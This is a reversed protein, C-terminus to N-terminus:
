AASAIKYWDKEAQDPTRYGLASHRRRTNYRLEIWRTIDVIAHRRTPYVTRHVLENKLTGNFSEAWANDYCIGTRGVSRLIGIKEAHTAYEDSTYQTGRDTHMITVGPRIHGNRDAMDLADTVLSTRMHDAIAYGVVKKTCCDLVTALYAWGEWTRIYTIDGVLKSAPEDATFDRRVLDPIRGADGAITTTPRWPRPQCAVLGLERMIQRVTDDDM